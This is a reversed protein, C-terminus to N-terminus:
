CSAAFLSARRGDYALTALAQVVGFDGQTRGYNSEIGWVAALLEPPMGYRTGVRRLLEGHEALMRQGEEIRGPSVVRALYTRFDLTFEPQTRDREIVEEIPTLGTLASDITAPSISAALPWRM